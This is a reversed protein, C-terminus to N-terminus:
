VPLVLCVGGGRCAAAVLAPVAEIGMSEHPVRDSAEARGGTCLKGLAAALAFRSPRAAPRLAAVRAPLRDLGPELAADAACGLREVADDHRGTLTEVIAPDFERFQRIWADHTAPYLGLAARAEQLAEDSRGLQALVM